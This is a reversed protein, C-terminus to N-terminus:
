GISFSTVITLNFINNDIVTSATTSSATVAAGAEARDPQATAPSVAAQAPGEELQAAAPPVTAQATDLKKLLMKPKKEL